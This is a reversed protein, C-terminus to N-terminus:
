LNCSKEVGSKEVGSMEVRCIEVRSMEFRSIKLNNRVGTKKIMFEEVRSKKVKGGHDRWCYTSKKVMFKEVPTSYKQSTSFHDRFNKTGSINQEWMLIM